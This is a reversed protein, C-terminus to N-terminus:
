SCVFGIPESHKETFLALGLECQVADVRMFPTGAETEDQREM